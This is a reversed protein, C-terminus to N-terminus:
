KIIKDGLKVPGCDIYDVLFDDDTKEAVILMVTPDLGAEKIVDIDIDVAADGARVNQGQSLHAKFGKGNLSVTDVGIHVLYSNGDTARICFAHGTPFAVEVKGGVPCVVKGDEPVFGITQGLLEEAFVQDSIEKAAVMQGTVPALITFEQKKFKDFLGM